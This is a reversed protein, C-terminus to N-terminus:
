MRAVKAVAAPTDASAAAGELACSSLQKYDLIKVVADGTNTGALLRMGMGRPLNRFACKEVGDIVFSLTCMDLNLRVIVEQPYRKIGKERYIENSGFGVANLGCVTPKLWLYWSDGNGSTDLGSGRKFNTTAVGIFTWYDPDSQSFRVRWEHSGNQVILKGVAGKNSLNASLTSIDTFKASSSSASADWEMGRKLPPMGQM